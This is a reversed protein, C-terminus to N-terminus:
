GTKWFRWWPAMEREVQRMTLGEANTADWGAGFGVLLDVLSRAGRRLALQLPPIGKFRRNVEAGARLLQHAVLCGPNNEAHLQDVAIRRSCTSLTANLAQNLRDTSFTYKELLLAVGEVSWVGASASLPTEDFQDVAAGDAGRRLLDRVVGTCGARAASVVIPACMGHRCEESASSDWYETLSRLFEMPPLYEHKEIYHLTMKPLVYRVKKWEIWWEGGDEHNNCLECRHLGLWISRSHLDCCHAVAQALHPEVSGVAPAESGLWGVSRAHVGGHLDATYLLSSLEDIKM